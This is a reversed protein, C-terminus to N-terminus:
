SAEFLPMVSLQAYVISSLNEVDYRTNVYM